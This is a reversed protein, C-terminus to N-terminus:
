TTMPLLAGGEDAATPRNAGHSWQRRMLRGPSPIPLELTPEDDEEEPGYWQERCQEGQGAPIWRTLRDTCGDKNDPENRIAPDCPGENRPGTRSAPEGEYSVGSSKTPDVVEKRVPTALM